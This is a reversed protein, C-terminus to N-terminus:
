SETSRGLKEALHQEAPTLNTPPTIPEPPKRYTHGLPSTWLTTGGATRTTTWGADKLDHCYRCKADANDPTSPGGHAHPVIHDIEARRAPVRCGPGRCTRDRAIVYARNRPTLFRRPDRGTSEAHEGPAAAMPQVAAPGTTQGTGAGQRSPGGEPGGGPRARPEAGPRARPGTGPRAGPGAEPEAGTGASKGHTGPSNRTPPETQASTGAASTAPSRATGGFGVPGLHTSRHHASDPAPLVPHRAFGPTPLVPRRATGHYLLGGTLPDAISYTWVPNGAKAPRDAMQRTIQRAIDAIVPGWGALEAPRDALDLLTPLDATLEMVGRRHVPGPGDWTGELLGLYVDARIQDMPRSDGAQKTARAIADVREFAAAAAGVPLQYGALYATGDSDTGHVLRRETVGLAYNNRATEPDAALALRRVRHALQGTTLDPAEPLVRAVVRRALPETLTRTERALVKARPVDILGDRLARWVAPLREVLLWADELAGGAARRTLTLAAAIEATAFKPLDSDWVGPLHATEERVRDAVVAMDAYLRAQEHAVQRAQAQLVVVTDFGSLRSRDIGALMAALRPGPRMGELGEPLHVGREPLTESLM